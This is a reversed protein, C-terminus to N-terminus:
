QQWQRRSSSTDDNTKEWTVGVVFASSDIPVGGDLYQWDLPVTSGARARGKPPILNINYRYLVDLSFTTDASNGRSDEATCTIDYSGVAFEASGSAPIIPCTVTLVGDVPFLDSVTLNDILDSEFITAVPRGDADTNFALPDAIAEITPRDEVVV